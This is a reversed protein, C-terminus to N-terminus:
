EGNGRFGHVSPDLKQYTIISGEQTMVGFEASDEDYRLIRRSWKRVREITFRGCPGLMFDRSRRAYEERSIYGFERQQVVHKHYHLEFDRDSTFSHEVEM